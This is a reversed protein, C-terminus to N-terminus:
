EISGSVEKYSSQVSWASFVAEMTSSAYKNIRQRTTSMRNNRVNAEAPIHERLRQRAIPRYTVIHKQLGMSVKVAQLQIRLLSLLYTSVELWICIVM